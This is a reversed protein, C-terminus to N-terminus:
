VRGMRREVTRHILEITNEIVKKFERYIVMGSGVAKGVLSIQLDRDELVVGRAQLHREFDVQELLDKLDQEVKPPPYGCLGEAVLRQATQLDKCQYALSAASLYLISRTPESSEEDPVLKAAHLEYELARRALDKAEEMRGEYRAVMAMQALEAAKDHLERVTTM